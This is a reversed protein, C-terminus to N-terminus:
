SPLDEAAKRYAGEIGPLQRLAEIEKDSVEKASQLQFFVQMSEVDIGPFTPQLTYHHKDLWSQLKRYQEAEVKHREDTNQHLLKGLEPSTIVAIM